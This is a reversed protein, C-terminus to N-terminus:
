RLQLELHQTVRHFLMLALGGYVFTVQESDDVRRFIFEDSLYLVGSAMMGCFNMSTSM